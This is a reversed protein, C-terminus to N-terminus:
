GRACCAPRTTSSRRQPSSCLSIARGAWGSTANRAIPPSMSSIAACGGSWTTTCGTSTRSPAPSRARPRMDTHLVVAQLDDITLEGPWGTIEAYRFGHFTFRPEWTRPGRGDLVVVDTQAAKRLPRTGLEGDELVEAHRITIETGASGDPLRLQLRGVLNQGFDVLTRETPSAFVEVAPVIQTRRVPPGTPAVLHVTGVSSVDVPTWASDDFGGASWGALERHADFTEGQYIDARTLPGLTSRWSADSSIVTRTGDPHEVELQAIAGPRHGYINRKGGFGLYGIFWGDALQVGIANAGEALLDTVDYTQYRLRHQYSTWGPALVQDGVLTGNIEAEYLGQATAYLRARVIPRDLVFERRLLAAPEGGTGTEPLEPQVLQASWDSRDLLGAEVVTDESWASPETDADGWVRARVARRERSALPPADWEQLISDASDVRGSSWAPGGLPEIEIEYAAQRWGPAETRIQWSLRPRPEGIGFPERHHEVTVPLVTLDSPTSFESALESM